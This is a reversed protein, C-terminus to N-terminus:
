LTTSSAAEGESVTPFALNSSAAKGAGGSREAM